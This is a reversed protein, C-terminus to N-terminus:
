GSRLGSRSGLVSWLDVRVRVSSRDRVRVRVTVRVRVRVEVWIRVRVRVKTEDYGQCWTDVCELMPSTRLESQPGVQM